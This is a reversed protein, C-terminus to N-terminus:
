QGAQKQLSQATALHKELTPLQESAMKAVAGSGSSAQLKFKAIDKQHDEVMARLFASDFAGGSLQSLKAYEEKAEPTPGKPPEIGLSGAVSLAEAQAKAHDAALMAGYNRVGESHGKSEALQGVQTEAM